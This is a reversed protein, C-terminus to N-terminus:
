RSACSSYSLTLGRGSSLVFSIWPLPPMEFPGRVATSSFNPQPTPAPSVPNIESKRGETDRPVRHVSPLLAPGPSRLTSGAFEAELWALAQYRDDFRTSEARTGPLRVNWNVVQQPQVGGLV